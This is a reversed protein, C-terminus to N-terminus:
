FLRNRRSIIVPRCHYAVKLPFPLTPPPNDRINIRSLASVFTDPCQKLATVCATNNNPYSVHTSVGLISHSRPLKWCLTALRSLPLCGLLRASKLQSYGGNSSVITSAPKSLIPFYMVLLFFVTACYIAVRGIISRQSRYARLGPSLTDQRHHSCALISKSPPIFLAANAAASESQPSDIPSSSPIGMSHIRSLISPLPVFYRVLMISPCLRTFKYGIKQSPIGGGLLSCAIPDRPGAWFFFFM